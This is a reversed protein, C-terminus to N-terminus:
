VKSKGWIEEGVKYCEPMADYRDLRTRQAYCRCTQMSCNGHFICGKCAHLDDIDWGGRYFDWKESHWAKLVGGEDRVNGIIQSQDGISETCPYISGDAGIALLYMGQSGVNAPLDFEGSSEKKGPYYYPEFLIKMSPNEEQLQRVQKEFEALEDLTFLFYDPNEGARGSVSAPHFSIGPVGSEKCVKVVERVGGAHVCDPVLVSEVVVPFKDDCFRKMTQIVRRYSGKGRMEDHFHEDGDLSLHIHFGKKKKEKLTVLSNYVANTVKHGNTFFEFFCRLTGAHEILECVDKRTTTEGGSFAVEIAGLRDLETFLSKMEATTLDDSTDMFPSSERLCHKCKLNCRMTSTVNVKTPFTMPAYKFSSPPSLQLNSLPRDVTMMQDTVFLTEGDILDNIFGDYEERVPTEGLEIARRYYYEWADEYVRSTTLYVLLDFTAESVFETQRTRATYFFRAESGLYLHEDRLIVDDKLVMYKM